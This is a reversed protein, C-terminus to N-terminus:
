QGVPYVLTAEWYSGASHMHNALWTAAQQATSGCTSFPAISKLLSGHGL